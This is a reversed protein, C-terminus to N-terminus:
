YFILLPHWATVAVAVFDLGFGLDLDSCRAPDFGPYCCAVLAVFGFGLGLDLGVVSDLDLAFGLYCHRAAAFCRDVVPNVLDWYLDAALDFCVLDLQRWERARVLVLVLVLVPNLVQVWSRVVALAPLAPLAPVPVVPRLFQPRVLLSYVLFLWRVIAAAFVRHGWRNIAGCIQNHIDGAGLHFFYRRHPGAM